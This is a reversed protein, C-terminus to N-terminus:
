DNTTAVDKLMDNAAALYKRQEAFALVRFPLSIQANDPAPNVTMVIAVGTM